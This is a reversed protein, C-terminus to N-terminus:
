KEQTSDYTNRESNDKTMNKDVNRKKKEYNGNRNHTKTDRLPLQEKEKMGLDMGPM